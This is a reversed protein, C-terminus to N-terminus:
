RNPAMMSPRAHGAHLQFNAAATPNINSRRRTAPPRLRTSSPKWPGSIAIAWSAISDSRPAYSLRLWGDCCWRATKGTLRAARRSASEPTRARSSTPPPWAAICRPPYTWGTSAGARGASQRRRFSVKRGAMAGAKQDAGHRGQRPTELGRANHKKGAGPRGQASRWARQAAQPRPAPVIDRPCCTGFENLLFVPGLRTSEDKIAISGTDFSSCSPLRVRLFLRRM